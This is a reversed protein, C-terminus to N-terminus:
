IKPTINQLTEGTTKKETLHARCSAQVRHVQFLVCRNVFAFDPWIAKFELM